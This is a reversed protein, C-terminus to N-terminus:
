AEDKILRKAESLISATKYGEIFNSYTRYFQLYIERCNICDILHNQFSENIEQWSEGLFNIDDYYRNFQEDFEDNLLNDEMVNLSSMGHLVLIGINDDKKCRYSLLNQRIM